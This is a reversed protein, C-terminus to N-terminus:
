GGHPERVQNSKSSSIAWRELTRAKDAQFLRSQSDRVLAQIKSNICIRLFISIQGNLWTDVLERPFAM